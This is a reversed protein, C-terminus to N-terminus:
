TTYQAILECLDKGDINISHTNTFLSQSKGIVECQAIQELAVLDDLNLSVGTSEITVVGKPSEDRSWSTLQIDISAIHTQGRRVGTGVVTYQLQTLQERLQAVSIATVRAHRADVLYCDIERTLELAAVLEEHMKPHRGLQVLHTGSGRIMWGYRGSACTRQLYARDHTYFDARYHKLRCAPAEIICSMADFVRDVRAANAMARNASETAGARLSTPAHDLGTQM